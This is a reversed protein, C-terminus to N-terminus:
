AVSFQLKALEEFGLLCLGSGRRCCSPMGAAQPAKRTGPWRQAGDAEWLGPNPGLLQAPAPAWPSLPSPLHFPLEPGRQRQRAVHGRTPQLM